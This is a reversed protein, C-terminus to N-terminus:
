GTQLLIENSESTGQPSLIAAVGMRLHTMEMPVAQPLPLCFAMPCQRLSKSM